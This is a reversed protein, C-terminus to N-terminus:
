PPFVAICPLLNTWIPISRNRSCDARAAHCRDRCRGARPIDPQRHIPRFVATLAEQHEPYNFAILDFPGCPALCENWDSSLIARYPRANM